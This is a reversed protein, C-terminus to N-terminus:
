NPSWISVRNDEGSTFIANAEPKWEFSRIVASHGGKMVSLLKFQLEKTIAYIGIVGDSNGAALYAQNRQKDYTVNLFYNPSFHDSSLIQRLDVSGMNSFDKVKQGELTWLSLRETHTLCSFFEYNPGFFDIRGVSDETNVGALLADDEELEINFICINGDVSASSLVKTQLPHYRIQTIDEYHFDSYKKLVKTSRLDWIKIFSSTGAALTADNYEIDFSFFEGEGKYCPGPKQTRVDWLRLTKDSSCSFLVDSHTRAFKIEHITGQHEKIKTILTLNQDYINIADQSSAVALVTNTCNMSTAFVYPTTDSEESSPKKQVTEECVINNRLTITPFTFPVTDWTINPPTEKEDPGSYSTNNILKSLILDADDEVEM